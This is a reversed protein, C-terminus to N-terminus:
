QMNDEHFSVVDVFDDSAGYLEFKIYICLNDIIMKFVWLFRGPYRHSPEPGYCFHKYSLDLLEYKADCWKRGMKALTRENKDQNTCLHDRNTTIALKMKQLVKDVEEQCARPVLDGGAPIM